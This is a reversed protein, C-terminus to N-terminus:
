GLMEMRSALMDSVKQYSKYENHIRDLEFKANDLDRTASKMDDVGEQYDLDHQKWKGLAADRATNNSYKKKGASDVANSIELMKMDELLKVEQESEKVLDELGAIHERQEKIRDPFEFLKDKIKIYEESLEKYDQYKTQADQVQQRAVEKQIEAISEKINSITKLRGIYDNEYDNLMKKKQDLGEINKSVQVQDELNDLNISLIIMRESKNKRSEGM